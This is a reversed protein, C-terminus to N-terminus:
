RTADTIRGSTPLGNALEDAVWEPPRASSARSSWARAWTASRRPLLGSSITKVAMSLSWMM